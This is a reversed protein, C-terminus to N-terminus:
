LHYKNCALRLKPFGPDCNDQKLKSRGETENKSLVPRVDRFSQEGHTCVDRKGRAIQCLRQGIEAWRKCTPTTGKFHNKKENAIITM